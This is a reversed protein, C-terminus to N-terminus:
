RAKQFRDNKERFTPPTSKRPENEELAQYGGVGGQSSSYPLSVSTLEGAARTFSGSTWSGGGADSGGRNTIAAGRRSNCSQCAAVANAEDFVNGGDIIARIYDVTGAEGGCWHCVGADRVLIEARFRKARASVHIRRREHRDSVCQPCRGPSLTRHRACMRLVPM